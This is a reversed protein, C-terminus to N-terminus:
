SRPVLVRSVSSADAPTEPQPAAPLLPVMSVVALRHFRLAVM